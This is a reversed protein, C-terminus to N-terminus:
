KQSLEDLREKEKRSLGNYGKRQVKDLLADLEDKESVFKEDKKDRVIRPGPARVLDRLQFRRGYPKPTILEPREIVVYILIATPIVLLLVIWYNEAIFKPQLALALLMGTIAGGLHAEHGINGMRTRVGFISIGVFLLAFLWAPCPIFFFLYFLSTPQIYVFAFIIGAIAGSAGVASYGPNNQHVLMALGKGGILAGFYIVLYGIEGFFVPMARGIFYLSLMNLILHNPNVHLFAGTFIRYYEKRQLVAGINFKYREMMSYDRFAMISPIVNAALLIFTIADIRSGM